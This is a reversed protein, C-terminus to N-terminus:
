LAAKLILTLVGTVVALAVAALGWLVGQRAWPRGADLSYRGPGTFAIAAAALAFLVGMEWVAFGASWTVNVINITTGLVIAAALPTFLGLLLLLGGGLESLGALTGFLKGPNYGMGDFMGQTAELGYGNFWGFLKQAGHVAFLGGFGIRLILLGIDTATADIGDRAALADRLATTKDSTPATM